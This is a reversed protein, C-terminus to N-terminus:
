EYPFLWSIWQKSTGLCKPATSFIVDKDTKSILKHHTSLSLIATDNHLIHVFSYLRAKNTVADAM